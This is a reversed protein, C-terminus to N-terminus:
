DCYGDNDYDTCYQDDYDYDEYTPRSYDYGQDRFTESCFYRFDGMQSNMRDRQYSCADYGTNCTQNWFTDVVDHNWSDVLQYNCTDLHSYRYRYGNFVYYPYNDITWYGNNYGSAPYFIWNVYVYQPFSM